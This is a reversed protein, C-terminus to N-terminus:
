LATEISPRECKYLNKELIAKISDCMAKVHAENLNTKFNM